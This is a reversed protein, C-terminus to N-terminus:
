VSQHCLKDLQFTPGKLPKISETSAQMYVVKGSSKCVRIQLYFLSETQDRLYAVPTYDDIQSGLQQEVNYRILTAIRVAKRDSATPQPPTDVQIENHDDLHCQLPTWLQFCPSCFSLGSLREAMRQQETERAVPRHEEAFSSHEVRVWSAELQGSPRQQQQQQQRHPPRQVKFDYPLKPPPDRYDVFM